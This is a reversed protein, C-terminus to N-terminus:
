CSHREDKEKEEKKKLPIFLQNVVVISPSKIVITYTFSGHSHVIMSYKLPMPTQIPEFHM